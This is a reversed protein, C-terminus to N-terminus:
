IRDTAFALTDMFGQDMQDYATEIEAQSVRLRELTLSPADFRRIYGLLAQDGEARVAALIDAVASACSTAAPQLRDLLRAIIKQGDPSATHCPTIIM